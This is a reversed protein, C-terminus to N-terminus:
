LFVTGSVVKEASILLFVTNFGKTNDQESIPIPLVESSVTSDM